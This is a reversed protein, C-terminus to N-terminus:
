KRESLRLATEKFKEDSLLDARRTEPNWIQLKYGVGGFVVEKTIGASELLESPINLRGLKGDPILTYVGDNYKTWFDADGTNLEPDIGDLVKESRREWEEAPFLDICRQQVNKKVILTMNEAGGRVMAERFTAPLVIRGKDDVKGAATGYFRVM